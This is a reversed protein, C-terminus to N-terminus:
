AACVHKRGDRGVWMPPWGNRRGYWLPEGCSHCPCPGLLVKGAM